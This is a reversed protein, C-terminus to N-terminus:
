VHRVEFRHMIIDGKSKIFVTLPVDQQKPFGRADDKHKEIFDQITKFNKEDIVYPKKFTSMVASDFEEIKDKTWIIWFIENGTFKNYSSTRTFIPKKSEIHASGIDILIKRVKDVKAEPFVVNYNLKGSDDLGENLVYIYGDTDSELVVQIKWGSDIAETGGISRFEGYKAGGHWKEGNLYFSIQRDPGPDLPPSTNAPTPDGKVSWMSSLTVFGAVAALLPLIIAGAILFKTLPRPKAPAVMVTAPVAAQDTVFPLVRTKTEYESPDPPVTMETMSNAFETAFNANYRDTALSTDMRLEKALGRGWARINQPRKDAEFNLGAMLVTEAVRPLDPRLQGPPVRVGEKQLQYMEAIARPKFPMEGTLMEYVVIATSYVDVADTLDLDGLLQEPAIYIITGVLRGVETVPALKAGEVRAIGFDILRVRPYGDHRPSLMINEPKIDRHLIKDAHAAGLADTISEVIHAVYDLPLQKNERLTKRLSGGKIYDMVMFPNGNTLNGSDLIRVIGPHDLRILAEKEHLFKRVIDEHKLADERLIKVVVRKDMLKVDRAMYVLGIGGADAGRDTLNKEIFFRGDLRQGILADPQSFDLTSTESLPRPEEENLGKNEADDTTAM